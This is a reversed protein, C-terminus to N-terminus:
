TGTFFRAYKTSTRTSNREMRLRMIVSLKIRANACMIPLSISTEASALIDQAPAICIAVFLYRMKRKRKALTSAKEGVSDNAVGKEQLGVCNLPIMSSQTIADVAMNARM